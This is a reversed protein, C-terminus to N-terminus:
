FLFAIMTFSFIEVKMILLWCLKSKKGLHTQNRYFVDCITPCSLQYFLSEAMAVPEHWPEDFEDKNVGFYVYQIWLPYPVRGLCRKNCALGVSGTIGLSNFKNYYVDLCRQCNLCMHYVLRIRTIYGWQLREGGGGGGGSCMRDAMCTNGSNLGPQRQIKCHSEHFVRWTCSSEQTVGFTM